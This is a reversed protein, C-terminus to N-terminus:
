RRAEKARHAKALALVGEAGYSNFTGLDGNRTGVRRCRIVHFVGTHAPSRVLGMEEARVQLDFHAGRM